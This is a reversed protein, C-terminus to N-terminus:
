ALVDAASGTVGFAAALPRPPWGIWERGKQQEEVM